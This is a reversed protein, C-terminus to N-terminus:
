EVKKLNDLALDIGGEYGFPKKLDRLNALLKGADFGEPSTRNMTREFTFFCVSEDNYKEYFARTMRQYQGWSVVVIDGNQDIGVGPIYHGGLIKKSPEIDWPRGQAFAKQFYDPAIVGIGVAGFLYMAVVLEEFNGTRLRVYADVHHKRGYRDTIGTLRRYEAAKGMDTGVDTPNKGKDGGANPNYGTVAAYDAIVQEDMFEVWKAVDRYWSSTENAAGAWVCNGIHDNQFMKINWFHQWVGFIKPPTPLDPKSFFQWFAFKVADPRAETKGMAYPQFVDAM